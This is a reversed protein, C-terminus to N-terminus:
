KSSLKKGGAFFTDHGGAGGCSDRDQRGPMCETKSLM